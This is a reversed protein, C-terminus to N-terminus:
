LLSVHLQLVAAEVNGPTLGGALVLRMRADRPWASWDFRQGTGGAQGAVYTDLMQCCADAYSAELAKMDLPGSVRHVKMYPLGFSGCLEAAEDGHFQLLDLEVKALVQDVLEVTPDVFLGVRILRDRTDTAIEAAVATDLHRVSQDYFNM